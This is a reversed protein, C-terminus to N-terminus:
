VEMGASTLFACCWKGLYHESSRQAITASGNEGVNQTITLLYDTPDTTPTAKNKPPSPVMPPVPPDTIPTAQNKPPTPNQDGDITLLFVMVM